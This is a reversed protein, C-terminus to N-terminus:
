LSYVPANSSSYTKYRSPYEGDRGNQTIHHNISETGPRRTMFTDHLRRYLRVSIKIRASPAGYNRM